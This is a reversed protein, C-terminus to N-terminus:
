RRVNRAFQAKKRTSEPYEDPNSTIQDAAEETSKGMGKAIKRFSGVTGRDKQKNVAAQIWKSAM